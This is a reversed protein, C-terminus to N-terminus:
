SRKEDKKGIIRAYRAMLKLDLYYYTTGLVAAPTRKSADKTHVLKLSAPPVCWDGFMDLPMTRDHEYQRLFEMWKKMAPYHKEIVRKDGYQEYIWGPIIVYASPWTVNSKYLSYFIPAINPLQGNEKQVDKIDDLWKAYLGVVSYDYSEGRSRAAPDGLWGQREARQPCDTPISRYNGRATWVANKHIRNILENSCSFEGTKEMDTHVVRGAISDIDPKGPFGTVEVFRFGHSTFRPEWLEEGDGKLIYTDTVKAGRLNDIYLGGDSDLSEAYRMSVKTGAAGSVKLRAWGVMNQGMDYIYVGDFLETVKVPKLTETVRMPEVMQAALVGGPENLYNVKRWGSDDFDSQAWGVMEMRGDYAEGDYENNTRVPGADTVKWKGNSIVTETKGNEYEIRMQLLLKPPGFHLTSSFPVSKRPAYYRGNGLIVGVANGGSKLQETVDFSTYLARKTYTTLGPDTVHDGIKEGNVYLEFWGLGCIYATARKIKEKLKFERRLYRATLKTNEEKPKDCDLGIWKAKWQKKALIGMSFNAVESWASVNGQRDWVRVKWYCKMYSKLRKGAYEIQINEDSKVKKTNWLDGKGAELKDPCSAVLIQYASQKWGRQGSEIKWSFRPRSADIGVPNAFYECRLNQVAAGNGAWVNVTFVVFVVLFVVVSKGIKM